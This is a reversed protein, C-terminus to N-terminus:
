RNARCFGGECVGDPGCDGGSCRRPACYRGPPAEFGLDGSGGPMECALWPDLSCTGCRALCLSGGSHLQACTAYSPCGDGCDAACLGRAGLDRCHGSLCAGDELTGDPAACSQGDDALVDPFCAKAWAGGVPVERCRLPSRCDADEGCTALCLSGLDACVAGDGCSAQACGRTCFGLPCELGTACSEPGDCPAGLPAATVVVYGARDREATGSTGGVALSVAYTGPLSFTHVPSADGVSMGGVTWVYSDIPAPALALFRLTLPATGTCAPGTPDFGECGAAVFDVWLLPPGGDRPGADVSRVITAADLGGDPSAGSDVDCASAFVAALVLRRRVSWWVM